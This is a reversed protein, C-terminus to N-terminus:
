TKIIGKLRRLQKTFPIPDKQLNFSNIVKTRHKHINELFELNNGIVENKNVRFPKKSFRGYEILLTNRLDSVRIM